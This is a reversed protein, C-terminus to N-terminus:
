RERRKTATTQRGRRRRGSMEGTIEEETYTAYMSINLGTTSSVTWQSSNLSCNIDDTVSADGVSNFYLTGGSRPACSIAVSYEGAPELLHSVTPSSFWGPTGGSVTLSVPEAVRNEPIGDAIEFATMGVSLDGAGTECGYVSYGTVSAVVNQPVTCTNTGSLSHCYAFSQNWSMTSAGIATNGFTPDITVPYRAQELWASDVALMLRENSKDISLECWITDIDDWARPRYVVFAQGTGYDHYSTDSGRIVRRNHAKSCHYAVWAGIVSDPRYAGLSDIEFDSLSDQRFFVLHDTEIDFTIVSSPPRRNLIVEWEMGGPVPYIRHSVAQGDISVVAEDVLVSLPRDKALGIRM